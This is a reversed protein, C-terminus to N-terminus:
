RPRWRSGWPAWRQVDVAPQVFRGDNRAGRTARPAGLPRGEACARPDSWPSRSSGRHHAESYDVGAQAWVRPFMSTPTFGPMTNIENLVLRGDRQYFWDVRALGECGATEFAKVSLERLQRTAEPPLDAPCSLTAADNLYKAEFDYFNHKSDPDVVIEGIQSARPRDPATAKSCVM